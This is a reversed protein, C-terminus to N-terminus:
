RPPAAPKMEAQAEEFKALQQKWEATQAARGTADYLQVLRQLTEQLRPKGAAPIDAERQKMGEYGSLLLPEAEAYQKQELLIGGLKSRADFTRWDDPTQREHIALSERALPEAESFRGSVLLAWLEMDFCAPDRYPASAEYLKLRSAFDRKPGEDPLLAIAEKQANFANTFRGVEAYAAALTNLLFPHPQSVATVAKQAFWVANSGDRMEPNAHTALLWALDNLTRAEGCEAVKRFWANAEGEDRPVGEGRACKRGFHYQAVPHGRDAAKRYWAAAQVPDKEVGHGRDYMWALVLQASPDGYEAAEHYLTVAEALRGQSILMEALRDRCHVVELMIGKGEWKTEPTAWRREKGKLMERYTAEAEALKGQALLVSALARFQGSLNEHERGLLRGRMEIVERFLSEAEAFKGNWSLIQALASVSSSLEPHDTGFLKRRMALAERELWEAEALKGAKGLTYALGDLSTAVDPHEQGFLKRRMALAERFMAEAESLKGLSELSSALGNLSAAVDAHENGLVKRRIALAESYLPEAEAARGHSELTRALGHLSEAVEAHENGRMQRRIALAERHLTEAEDYECLALYVRAMTYRLEAEVGPQDKLDNGVRAATKDLIERLMATDRGRAVAPGAGELMDQLFRAVQRSKNAEAQAKHEGAEARDRERRAQGFGLLALALGAAFTLTLTAAMAVGFRHRRIFKRSRYITGPPSARVPEHNLHLQIDEVLANATSYRRQREKELCKMAIWDLDGHLQRTLATPETHRRQAVEALKDGLTHLRTSPKPPETERIIRRIDDLAAKRLTDADFPTVGTLLEYLLVGLSYIDSRTDVDVGSLEAQEPSMYTPTGIMQRFATFLTKETLRQGLAKAVGFDIIKPVPQGDIVTVLINTPKLDRHIIGKQHAHQVAHCVQMFLQLRDATPLSKQDCYETIPIGRVLEMVFYPRGTETAGADLVRSINPHDMLALAQREAEFRAIVERTDMGAKIIKLAVKRQMPETQEAMFVVGFGGEGIRELLKYRGIMVGTREIVFETPPLELTPELFDGARAYASLLTEVQRRLAVDNQCAADLCAARAEPTDKEAAAALVEKLREHEVSM